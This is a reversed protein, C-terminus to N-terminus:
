FSKVIGALERSTMGLALLTLQLRSSIGLLSHKSQEILKRGDGDKGSALLGSVKMLEQCLLTRCLAAQEDTLRVEGNIKSAGKPFPPGHWAAIMRCGVTELRDPGFPLSEFSARVATM